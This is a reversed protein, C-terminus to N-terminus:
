HFKRQICAGAADFVYKIYGGIGNVEAQSKPIKENIKQFIMSRKRRESSLPRIEVM